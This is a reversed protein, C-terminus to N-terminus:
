LNILNKNTQLTTNMKIYQIMLHTKYLRVPIFFLVPFQLLPIKSVSLCKTNCSAIYRRHTTALTRSRGFKSAIERRSANLKVTQVLYVLSLAQWLRIFTGWLKYDPLHLFKESCQLGMPPRRSNDARQRTTSVNGMEMKLKILIYISFTSLLRWTACMYWYLLAEILCFISFFHWPYFM